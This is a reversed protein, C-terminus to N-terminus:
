HQGSIFQWLGVPGGRKYARWRIGDDSSNVLVGLEYNYAPLNDESGLLLQLRERLNGLTEDSAHKKWEVVLLNDGDAKRRHVVLDPRFRGDGDRDLRAPLLKRLDGHRDYDHPESLTGYM